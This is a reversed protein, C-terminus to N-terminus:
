NASASVARATYSSYLHDRFFRPGVVRGWDVEEDRYIRTAANPSAMVEFFGGHLPGDLKGNAGRADLLMSAAVRQPVREGRMEELVAVVDAGDLLEEPM